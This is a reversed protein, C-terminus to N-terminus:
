VNEGACRTRPIQKRVLSESILSLQSKHKTRILMTAPYVLIHANFIAGELWEFM